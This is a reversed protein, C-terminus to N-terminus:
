SSKCPFKQRFAQVALATENKNLKDPNNQLFEIIIEASERHGLHPKDLCFYADGNLKMVYLQNLERVGQLLGYCYAMDAGANFRSPNDITKIANQCRTLLYHGDAFAKVPGFLMIVTLPALLVKFMSTGLRNLGELVEKNNFVLNVLFYGIFTTIEPLM